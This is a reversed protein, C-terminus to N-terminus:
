AHLRPPAPAARRARLRRHRAAPLGAVSVRHDPERAPRRRDPAQRRDHVLPRPGHRARGSTTTPSSPSTRTPGTTTPSTPRPPTPACRAASSAPSRACRRWPRAQEVAWWPSTTFDCGAEWYCENGNFTRIRIEGQGVWKGEVETYPGVNPEFYPLAFGAGGMGVALKVTDIAAQRIRWQDYGFIAAKEALKAAGADEPDTTSPDVQYNPIRQTASSVKDEVLPRVFNYRNRIRHLPKGGGRGYTVTAQQQLVNKEDLYAYSDGREFRVCLRRKSADRLMATRGRRMSREVVPPIPISRAAQVDGYSGTPTETAV